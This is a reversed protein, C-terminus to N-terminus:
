RRRNGQHDEQRVLHAEHDARRRRHIEHVTVGEPVRRHSILGRKCVYHNTDGTGQGKLEFAAVKKAGDKTM